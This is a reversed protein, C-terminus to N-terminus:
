ALAAQIEALAHRRDTDSLILPPALRIVRDEHLTWGLLLHRARCAERGAGGGMALRGAVLPAAGGWGAVWRPPPRRRGADDHMLRLRVQPRSRDNQVGIM